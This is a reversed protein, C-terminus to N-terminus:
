KAFFFDCQIIGSSGYYFNGVAKLVFGLKELHGVIGGLNGPLSVDIEVLIMDMQSLVRLGSNIVSLEAGQVDIKALKGGLDEAFIESYFQDLPKNPVKVIENFRYGLAEGNKSAELSSCDIKSAVYFDVEEGDLDSICCEHLSIGLKIAAKRSRELVLPEFAVVRKVSQNGAYCQSFQGDRFGIDVILEIKANGIIRASEWM